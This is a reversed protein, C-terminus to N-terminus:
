INTKRAFDLVIAWKLDFILKQNFSFFHPLLNRISYFQTFTLKQGRFHPETRIFLVNEPCFHTELQFLFDNKRLHAEFRILNHPRSTPKQNFSFNKEEFIEQYLFFNNKRPLFHNKKNFLCNNHVLNIQWNNCNICFNYAVIYQNVQVFADIFSCTVCYSSM